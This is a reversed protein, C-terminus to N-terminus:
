ESDSEIMGTGGELMEVNENYDEVADRADDQAEVAMKQANEIREDEGCATLCCMAGLLLVVTLFRKM